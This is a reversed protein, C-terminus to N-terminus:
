SSVDIVKEHNDSKTIQCVLNEIKNYVSDYHEPTVKSSDKPLDILIKELKHLDAENTIIKKLNSMVFEHKNTLFAKQENLQKIGGNVQVQCSEEDEAAKTQTNDSVEFNDPLDEKPYFEFNTENLKTDKSPNNNYFSFACKSNINDSIEFDEPNDEMSEIHFQQDEENEYECGPVVEEEINQVQLGFGNNLTATRNAENFDLIVEKFLDKDWEMKTKLEELNQLNTKKMIKAFFDSAKLNDSLLYNTKNFAESSQNQNEEINNSEVMKILSSLLDQSGCEEFYFGESNSSSAKNSGLKFNNRAEFSDIMSKTINQNAKGKTPAASMPKKVVAPKSLNSSSNKKPPKVPTKKIYPSQKNVLLRGKYFNNAKFEFNLQPKKKNSIQQPIPPKLLGAEKRNDSIKSDYITRGLKQLVVSLCKSHLIEFISPRKGPNKELLMHIMDKLEQSYLKPIPEYSGSIIKLMVQGFQKGQFPPKFCAMEYLICGIAWIDSKSNYPRHDCLEPSMYNATGIFTHALDYSSNLIKAVGLDGIKVKEDATIFINMSKLDRHLVNKSHLKQLGLCIDIFFKWIKDEPFYTSKINQYKALHKKLDGGECLEMAIYLFIGEVFSEFYRTIYPSNLKELLQAEQKLNEIEDQNLGEISIVKMAIKLHPKDNNIAKFIEGYAGIAICEKLVYGRVIHHTRNVSM